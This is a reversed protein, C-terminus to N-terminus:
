AKADSAAQSAELARMVTVAQKKLDAKVADYVEAPMESNQKAVEIEKLAALLARKKGELVPTPENAAAEVHAATAAVQRRSKTQVVGRSVLAAWLVIGVLLGIAAPVLWEMWAADDGDTAVTASEPHIAMWFPSPPADFQLITAATTVGPLSSSPEIPADYDLGAPLYVIAIRDAADVADAANVSFGFSRDVRQTTSVTLVYSGSPLTTPLTFVVSDSSVTAQSPNCTCTTNRVSAGAPVQFGHRAETANDFQVTLRQEINWSGDPEAAGTTPIDGLAARLQYPQSFDPPQASAPVAALVLAVLALSLLIRM